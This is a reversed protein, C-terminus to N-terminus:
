YINYFWKSGKRDLLEGATMEMLNSLSDQRPSNKTLIYINNNKEFEKINNLSFLRITDNNYQRDLYDLSGDKNFDNIFFPSEDANSFQYKKLHTLDLLIWYNWTGSILMKRDLVHLLLYDINKQSFVYANNVTFFDIPLDFLINKIAIKEKCDVSGDGYAGASTNYYHLISYTSDLLFISEACSDKTVTNLEKYKLKLEIFSIQEKNLLKYDLEVFNSKPLSDNINNRKCSFNIIIFVFLIYKTM